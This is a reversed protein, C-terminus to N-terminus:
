RYIPASAIKELRGKVRSLKYFTAEDGEMLAKVMARKVVRLAEAALEKRNRKRKSVALALEEVERALSASEKEYLAQALAHIKAHLSLRAM